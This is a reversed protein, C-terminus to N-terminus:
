AVVQISNLLAHVTREHNRGWEILEDVQRESLELVPRNDRILVNGYKTSSFLRCYSIKQPPKPETM